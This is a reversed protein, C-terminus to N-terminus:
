SMVLVDECAFCAGRGGIFACGNHSESPGPSKVSRSFDTKCGELVRESKDNGRVLIALIPRAWEKKGASLGQHIRRKKEKM